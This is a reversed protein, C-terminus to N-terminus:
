SPGRRERAKRLDDIEDAATEANMLAKDMLESWQKAVVALQMGRLNGNDIQDALKIAAVSAHDNLRGAAELARRTAAEVSPVGPADDPRPVVTLGPETTSPKCAFCYIRRTGHIKRFEKGCQKCRQKLSGTM